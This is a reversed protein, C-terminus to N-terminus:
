KKKTIEKDYKEYFNSINNETLVDKLDGLIIKDNEQIFKRFFLLVFCMIKNKFKVNSMAIKFEAINLAKEVEGKNISFDDEIKSSDLVNLLLNNFEKKTTVKDSKLVSIFLGFGKRIFYSPTKLLLSDLELRISNRIM